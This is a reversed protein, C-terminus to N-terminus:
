GGNRKMVSGGDQQRSMRWIRSDSDLTKLGKKEADIGRGYIVTAWELPQPMPPQPVVFLLHPRAYNRAAGGLDGLDKRYVWMRM